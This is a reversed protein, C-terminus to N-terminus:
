ALAAVLRAGDRKLLAKTDLILGSFVRSHLLGQKDAALAKYDGDELHYWVVTKEETLWVLYETIGARRYARKKEHMDISRTSDAIECIFEPAGCLYGRSDLWVRHQPKPTSCLIADPQPANEQDLVLTANTYAKVGAKLGTKSYAFTALWFQILNDPEAHADARVPSPMHVTGEILQCKRLGTEEEYRRLFDVVTLHEGNEL